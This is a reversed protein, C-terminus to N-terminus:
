DDFVFSTVIEVSWPHAKAFEYEYDCGHDDVRDQRPENEPDMYDPGSDHTLYDKKYIFKCVENWTMESNETIFQIYDATSLVIEPTPRTTTVKFEREEM